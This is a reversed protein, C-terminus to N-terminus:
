CLPAISPLTNHGPVDARFARPRRKPDARIRALGQDSLDGRAEETGAKLAGDRALKRIMFRQTLRARAAIGPPARRPWRM